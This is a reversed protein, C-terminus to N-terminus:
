EYIKAAYLMDAFTRWSPPEAIRDGMDETWAHLAELYADLSPNEWGGAAPGHPSSPTRAEKAHSALLDDRLASVFELFTDRSNVREVKEHLEM